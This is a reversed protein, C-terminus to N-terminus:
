APEFHGDRELLAVTWHRQAVGQVCLELQGVVPPHEHHVRPCLPDGLLVPLETSCERSTPPLSRPPPPPPSLSLPSSLSNSLAPSLSLSTFSHPLSTFSHPLSLLPPPPLFLFFYLSLSPSSVSLSLPPPPGLSRSLPSSLSLPPHFLLPSPALSLSHLPPTPPLPSYNSYPICIM